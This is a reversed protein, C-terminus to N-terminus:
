DGALKKLRALHEPEHRAIDPDKSLLDYAHKFQRRAEDSKGQAQLAEALQENVFGNHKSEVRRLIEIAEDYRGLLRLCKGVDKIAYVDPEKGQKLDLDVLNQFQKLAQHYNKMALCTEGTNNYLAYLWGQQTPNRRTLDIAELNWKLRDEPNAEAIGLMHLADIEYGVAGCNRATEAAQHFFSLSKDSQGASNLVRGRKLLYRTRAVQMEPRLLREAQDLTTNADDFHNQLGQARAIQTLLEVLYQRNGSSQAAPLIKRFGAETTAPDAYNWLRDFNPLESPQTSAGM